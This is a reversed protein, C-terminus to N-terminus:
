IHYVFDEAKRTYIWWGLLLVGVASGAAVLMTLPEPLRGDYIPARFLELLYYMPNVQTIWAYQPPMIEKPYMVPTLFFAAQLLVQYIDVVDTFFVALASVLLAVGLAFMALLLVAVPLFLWTLYVGHRLLLVLGLLPLLTLGLNVLGHGISAVCFITRPLYIRKLLHGGWVVANMAYLTTQSFFNWAILGSLVYIPYDSLAVRFLNAFAITLVAMNLLPNLLSWLM